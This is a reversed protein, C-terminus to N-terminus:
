GYGVGMEPWMRVKKQIPTELISLSEAVCEVIEEASEAHDLCFVMADAIKSRELTLGRLM